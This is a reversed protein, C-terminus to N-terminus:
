PFVGLIEAYEKIAKQPPSVLVGGVDFFVAKYNMGKLHGGLGAGGRLSAPPHGDKKATM